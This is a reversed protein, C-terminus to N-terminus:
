EAIIRNFFFGGVATSSAALPRSNRGSNSVDGQATTEIVSVDFTGGGFDLVLAVHKKKDAVLPHKIGYRYYQFVAFPEPLFDVDKFSSSLIRRIHQRYNALWDGKTAGQEHIAVPEAILVRSAKVLGQNAIWSEACAVLKRLYDNTISHITRYQGNAVRLTKPNSSGAEQEGLQVKFNDCVQSPEEARDYAENGILLEDQSYWVATPITASDDVLLMEISNVFLDRKKDTVGQGGNRIQQWSRTVM